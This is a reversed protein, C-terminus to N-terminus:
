RMGACRAADVPLGSYASGACVLTAMDCHGLCETYDNCAEGEAKKSACVKADTCYAGDVCTNTECASGAEGFPVCERTPTNWSCYTGAQCEEDTQCAGGPGLKQQCTGDSACYLGDNRFCRATVNPPPETDSGGPGSCYMNTDTCGEFCPTLCTEACPDGVKGRAFVRCVGPVCQIGGDRDM